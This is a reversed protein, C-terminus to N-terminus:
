TTISRYIDPCTCDSLKDILMNVQDPNKRCLMIFAIRM